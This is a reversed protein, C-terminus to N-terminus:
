LECEHIITSKRHIKGRQSRQKKGAEEKEDRSKLDDRPTSHNGGSAEGSSVLDDDKPKPWQKERGRGSAEEGQGRKRDM